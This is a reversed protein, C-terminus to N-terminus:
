SKAADPIPPPVARLKSLSDSLGTVEYELVMGELYEKDLDLGLGVQRIFEDESFDFEDDADHVASVLTILQIKDAVSDGKFHELCASLEFAGPEFGKIREGIEVPLSDKAGLLKGILDGIVEQEREHFKDDAYAAGLLLDCIWGIRDDM